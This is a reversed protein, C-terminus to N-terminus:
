KLGAQKMIKHVLGKGLDKKPHPVTIHGSITPHNFIHHRGVVRHRTGRELRMACASSVLAYSKSLQVTNSLESRTSELRRLCLTTSQPPRTLAHVITELVVTDSEQLSINENNM